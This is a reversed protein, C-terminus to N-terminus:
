GTFEGVIDVMLNGHGWLIGVREPRLAIITLMITLWIITLWLGIWQAGLLTFLRDYGLFNFIKKL